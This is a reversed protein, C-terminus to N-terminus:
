LVFGVALGLGSCFPATGFASCQSILLPWTQIFTHTFCSCFGPQSITRHTFTSTLLGSWALEAAPLYVTPPCFQTGCATRQDWVHATARLDRCMYVHLYIFWYFLQLSQHSNGKTSYQGISIFQLFYAIHLLLIVQRWYSVGVSIFPSSRCCCTCPLRWKICRFFLPCGLWSQLCM